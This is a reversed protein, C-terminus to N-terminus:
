KRCKLIIKDFLVSKYRVLKGKNYNPSLKKDYGDFIKTLLTSRFCLVFDHIEELTELVILLLTSVTLYRVHIVLVNTYPLQQYTNSVNNWM